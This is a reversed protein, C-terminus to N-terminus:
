KNEGPKPSWLEMLSCGYFECLKFATTMEVNGGHEIAHLGAVSIGTAESVDRLSLNLGNRKERCHCVVPSSREKAKNRPPRSRQKTKSLTEAPTM